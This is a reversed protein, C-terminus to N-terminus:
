STAKGQLEFADPEGAVFLKAAIWWHRPVTRYLPTRGGAARGVYEVM